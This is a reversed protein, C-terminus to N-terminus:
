SEAAALLDSVFGYGDTVKLGAMAYLLNAVDHGRFAGVNSRHDRFVAAFFAPHAIELKGLAWAIQAVDRPEMLGVKRAISDMFMAIFEEARVEAKAFAWM